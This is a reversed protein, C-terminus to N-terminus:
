LNHCKQLQTVFSGALSSLHNAPLYLPVARCLGSLTKSATCTHDQSSWFANRGGINVYLNLGPSSPHIQTYLDHTHFDGEPNAIPLGSQMARSRHPVHDAYSLMQLLPVTMNWSWLRDRNGEEQLCNRVLMRKKKRSFQCLRKFLHIQTQM